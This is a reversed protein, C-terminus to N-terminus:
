LGEASYKKQDSERRMPGDYCTDARRRRDPGFYNDTEVFDRPNNIVHSIRRAVDNASFPKVLFETVGADRAAEVRPWASYGTIMIIPAMKNPSLDNNRIERTLTMGDGPEMVWDTIIIDYNEKCFLKFAEEGNEAATVNEIGLCRLVSVFLQKMPIIDEVVLIKLKNLHFAM